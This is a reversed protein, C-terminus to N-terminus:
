DYGLYWIQSDKNRKFLSSVVSLALMLGTAKDATAGSTYSPQDSYAEQYSAM